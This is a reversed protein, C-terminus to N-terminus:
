SAQRGREGAPPSEGDGELHATDAAQPGRDPAVGAAGSAAPVESPEEEGSAKSAPPSTTVAARSTFGFPCRSVGSASGPDSTTPIRKSLFPCAALMKVTLGRALTLRAFFM